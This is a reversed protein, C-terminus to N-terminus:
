WCVLMSVWSCFHKARAWNTINSSLGSPFLTYGCHDMRQKAMKLIWKMLKGKWCHSRQTLCCLLIEKKTGTRPTSVISPHIRETQITCFHLNLCLKSLDVTAVARQKEGKSGEIWDANPLASTPLVSCPHLLYNARSKPVPILDFRLTTFRKSNVPVPFTRTLHNLQGWLQLAILCPFPM